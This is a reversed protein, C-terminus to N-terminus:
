GFQTRLANGVEMMKEVVQSENMPPLIGTNLMTAFGITFTWGYEALKGIQQNSQDQMHKEFPSNETSVGLSQNVEDVVGGNFLHDRQDESLKRPKDFHLFRFLQPEEQAFMITGVALNFVENETYPKKQFEIHTATAKEFLAQELTEMNAFQSYIPMTSVGLATSVTRVSVESFGRTRLIKFASELIAAKTISQKRPM